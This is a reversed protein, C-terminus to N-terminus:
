GRNGELDRHHIEACEGEDVLEGCRCRAVDDDANVARTERPAQEQRWVSSHHLNNGEARPLSVKAEEVLRQDSSVAYVDDIQVNILYPHIEGTVIPPHRYEYHQNITPRTGGSIWIREKGQKANSDGVCMCFSSTSHTGLGVLDEDVDKDVGDDDTGEDLRSCEEAKGGSEHLPVM